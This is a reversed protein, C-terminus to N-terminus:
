TMTLQGSTSFGTATLYQKLSKRRPFREFATPRGTNGNLDSSQYGQRNNPKKWSSNAKSMNLARRRSTTTRREKRQTSSTNRTTNRRRRTSRRWKM